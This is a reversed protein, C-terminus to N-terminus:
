TFVSGRTQVLALNCTTVLQSPEGVRCHLGNLETDQLFLCSHWPQQLFHQCRAYKMWTPLSSSHPSLRLAGLNGPRHPPFRVTTRSRSRVEHKGTSKLHLRKCLLLSPTFSLSLSLAQWLPYHPSSSCLSLSLSLLTVSRKMSVSFTLTSTFFRENLWDSARKLCMPTIIHAGAELFFFFFRSSTHEEM